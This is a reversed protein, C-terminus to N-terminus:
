LGYIEGVPCLKLGCADALMICRKRITGSAGVVAGSDLGFHITPLNKTRLRLAEWSRGLLGVYVIASPWSVLNNGNNRFGSGVSGHQQAMSNLAGPVQRALM